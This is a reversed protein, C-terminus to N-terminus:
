SSSVPWCMPWSCRVAKAKLYEGARQWFSV